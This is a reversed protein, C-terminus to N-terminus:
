GNSSTRDGNNLGNEERYAGNRRDEGAEALDPIFSLFAIAPFDTQDRNHGPRPIRRVIAASVFIGGVGRPLDARRAGAIDFLCDNAGRQFYFTRCSRWAIMEPAFGIGMPPRTRDHIELGRRAGARERTGALFRVTPPESSPM